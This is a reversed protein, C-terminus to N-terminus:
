EYTVHSDSLPSRREHVSGGGGEENECVYTAWTGFTQVSPWSRKLCRVWFFFFWFDFSNQLGSIHASCDPAPARALAGSAGVAAHM